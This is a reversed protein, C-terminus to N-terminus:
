WFSIIKKELGLTLGNRKVFRQAWRLSPNCVSLENALSQIITTTVPFGREAMFIAYRTLDAEQDKSLVRAHDGKKSPDEPSRGESIMRRLTTESVGHDMGARRMSKGNEVDRLARFIGENNTAMTTSAVLLTLVLMLRM